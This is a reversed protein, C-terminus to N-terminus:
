KPWRPLKSFDIYKAANAVSIANEFPIVGLLPVPLRKSLTNINENRYLMNPDICNAVWGALKLNRVNIAEVTLLAHNLCGLRIGVVLVVPLGLQVALQASDLTDSLPVCFGGLGEVIIADTKKTIKQYCNLIHEFTINVKELSAAIHPAIANKLLFPTILKNPIAVNSFKGLTQTDENQWENKEFHAGAAVPKMGATRINKETLAYVMASSVLTKGVGTDTGTIFFSLHKM